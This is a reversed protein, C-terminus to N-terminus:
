ECIIWYHLCAHTFYQQGPCRVGADESHSDSSSPTSYSCSILSTESGSCAVNDLFISGNGQGFYANRFYQVGPHGYTFTLMKNWIYAKIVEMDWWRHFLWTPSLCGQCWQLEMWWWDSDGMPQWHMNGGTRWESQWWWGTQYWWASM